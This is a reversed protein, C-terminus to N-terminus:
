RIGYQSSSSSIPRPASPRAAAVPKRPRSAPHPFTPPGKVAIATNYRHPWWSLSKLAPIHIRESAHREAVFDDQLKRWDSAAQRAFLTAEDAFELVMGVLLRAYTDTPGPLCFHVCDRGLSIVRRDRASPYALRTRHSNLEATMTATPFALDLTHNPDRQFARLLTSGMTADPRRAGISFTDVFSAAHTHSIWTAIEHYRHLQAYQSSFHGENFEANVAEGLSIPASYRGCGVTPKPPSLVFTTRPHHGHLLRRDHQLSAITHNLMRAFLSPSRPSDFYHMGTGLVVIDAHHAAMTFDAFPRTSGFQDPSATEREDNRSYLLYDNRVFEIRVTGGCALSVIRRPDDRSTRDLEDTGLGGWATISGNLIFTLSLFLQQM